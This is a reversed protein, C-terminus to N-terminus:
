ESPKKENTDYKDMLSDLESDLKNEKNDDDHAHTLTKIRM